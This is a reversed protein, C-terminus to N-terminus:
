LQLKKQEEVELDKIKKRAYQVFLIYGIVFVVLIGAVVLGAYQFYKAALEYSQGLYYGVALLVAYQSLTVPLAYTIFKKFPMKFFGASVLFPTSLGYALKSLFMTKGPHDQWLKKIVEANRGVFGSRAIYKTLVTQKNGFRGLYYYVTDPILDGCILLLYAPIFELYGLHIMFGVALAVLPGEFCALPFLILYRYTILLALM